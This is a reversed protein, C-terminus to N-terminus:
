DNRGASQDGGRAPLSVDWLKWSLRPEGTSRLRWWFVSKVWVTSLRITFIAPSLGNEVSLKESRRVSMNEGITGVMETVHAEVSKGAGPYDAWCDTMAKQALRLPPLIGAMSQFTENRAVFDTEFQSLLRARRAMLPWALWATLRSVVPKKAAKALGKTRLWDVAAAM